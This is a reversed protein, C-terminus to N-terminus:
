SGQHWFAVVCRVRRCAAYAHCLCPRGDSPGSRTSASVNLKSGFLTTAEDALSMKAGEAVPAGTSIIILPMSNQKFLLWSRANLRFRSDFRNFPWQICITWFVAIVPPTIALESTEINWLEDTQQNAQQTQQNTCLCHIRLCCSHLCACDRAGQVAHLQLVHVSLQCSNNPCCASWKLM